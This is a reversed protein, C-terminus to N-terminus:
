RAEEEEDDSGEDTSSDAQRVELSGALGELISEATEGSAVSQKVLRELAEDDVPGEVSDVAEHVLQEVFLRLWPEADEIVDDEIVIDDDVEAGSRSDEVKRRKSPGAADKGEADEIVDDEDAGSRSGEVKRRKSSGAADKGKGSAKSKRRIRRGKLNKNKAEIESKELKLKRVNLKLEICQQEFTAAQGYNNSNVAREKGKELFGIQTECSEIQEKVEELRDERASEKAYTSSKEKVSGFYKSRSKKGHAYTYGSAHLKERAKQLLQGRNGVLAQDEKVLEVAADNIKAQYKTLKTDGKKGFIKAKEEMEDELNIVPPTKRSYSLKGKNFSLTSQRSKMSGGSMGSTSPVELTVTESATAEKAGENGSQASTPQPESTPQLESTPQSQPSESQATPQSIFKLLIRDGEVCEYIDVDDVDVYTEFDFLKQFVMVRERILSKLKSYAKAAENEAEEITKVRMIKKLVEKGDVEITTLILPSAM